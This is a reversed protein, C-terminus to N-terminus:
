RKISTNMVKHMVDTAEAIDFVPLFCGYAALIGGVKLIKLCERCFKEFDFWQLATGVTVLDVSEASFYANLNEAQGVRFYCSTM